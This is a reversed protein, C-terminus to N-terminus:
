HNLMYYLETVDRPYNEKGKIYNNQLDQLLKTYWMHDAACLMALGLYQERDSLAALETDEETPNSLDVAIVLYEALVLGPDTGNSGGFQEVM